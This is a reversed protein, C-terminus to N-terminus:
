DVRALDKKSSCKKKIIRVLHVNLATRNWNERHLRWILPDIYTISKTNPGIGVSFM